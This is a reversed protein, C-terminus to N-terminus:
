NLAFDSTKKCTVNVDDPFEADYVAKAGDASNGKKNIAVKFDAKSLVVENSKGSAIKLDSVSNVEKVPMMTFTRIRKLDLNIVYRYGSTSSRCVLTREAALSIQTALTLLTVIFLKM